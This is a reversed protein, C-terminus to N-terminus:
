SQVSKSTENKEKGLSPNILYKDFDKFDMSIAAQKAAQERKNLVELALRRKFESVVVRKHLTITASEAGSTLSVTIYEGKLTTTSIWSM